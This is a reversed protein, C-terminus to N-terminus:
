PSPRLEVEAGPSNSSRHLELVGGAPTDTPVDFSLLATVTTGPSVFTEFTLTWVAAAPDPVYVADNIRLKQYAAVFEMLGSGNNTITLQATLFTGRATTQMFPLGPNTMTKSREVSTVVFTVNGDVAHQGLLVPAAPPPSPSPSVPAAAPIHQPAPSYSSHPIPPIAPAPIRAAPASIPRPSQDASRPHLTAMVVFVALAAVVAVGAVLLSRNPNRSETSSDASTDTAPRVGFVGWQDDGRLLAEHQDDARAVIQAKEKQRRQWSDIALMILVVLGTMVAALSALLLFARWDMIIWVAAALAAVSTIGPHAAIFARFRPTYDMM